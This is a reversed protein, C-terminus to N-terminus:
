SKNLFNWDKMSFFALESSDLCAIYTSLAEVRAESWPDVGVTWMHQFRRIMGDATNCLFAHDVEHRQLNRRAQLQARLTTLMATTLMATTASAVDSRISVRISNCLEFQSNDDVVCNM